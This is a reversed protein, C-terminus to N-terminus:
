CASTTAWNAPLSRRPWRRARKAASAPLGSSRRSAAPRRVHRDVEEAALELVPRLLGVSPERIAFQTTHVGVAVGGAGAALYYRTLARQRREDLKRQANLALPHAPIVMGRRLAALVSGFAAAVGYCGGSSFAQDGKNLPCFMASGDPECALRCLMASGLNLLVQALRGAAIAFGANSSHVQAVRAAMRVPVSATSRWIVRSPLLRSRLRDVAPWGGNNHSAAM